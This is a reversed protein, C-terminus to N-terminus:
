RKMHELKVGFGRSGINFKKLGESKLSITYFESGSGYFSNMINYFSAVSFM